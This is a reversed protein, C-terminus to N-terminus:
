AGVGKTSSNISHTQSYQPTPVYFTLCIIGGLIMLFSPKRITEPLIYTLLETLIALSIQLYDRFKIQHVNYYIRQVM